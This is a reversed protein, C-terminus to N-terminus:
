LDLTGNEYLGANNLASVVRRAILGAPYCVAEEELDDEDLKWISRSQMRGAYAFAAHVSEHTVIEMGLYGVLLGMVAFYRKDVELYPTPDGEQGKTFDMVTFQLSDVVGLAGKIGGGNKTPEANHWFERMDKKTKFVLLKMRLSAIKIDGEYVAKECGKYAARWVTPFSSKSIRVKM